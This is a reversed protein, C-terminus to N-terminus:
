SKQTRSSGQVATELRVCDRQTNLDSLVREFLPVFCTLICEIATYLPQHLISHLNNIYPSVLHVIGDQMVAFDSPLWAFNQSLTFKQTWDLNGTKHAPPGVVFLNSQTCPAGPLFACNWGYVICYLSPHVLDLVQKNSGPHWDKKSDELKVAASKFVNFLQQIGREEDAIKSYGELETIVYNIMNSTLREEVPVDEQQDLVHARWRECIDPDEM